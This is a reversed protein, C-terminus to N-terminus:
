PMHADYALVFVDGKLEDYAARVHLVIKTETAMEIADARESESLLYFAEAKCKFIAKGANESVALMMTKAERDMDRVKMTFSFALVGIIGTKNCNYCKGNFITGKCSDTNHKRKVIDEGPPFDDMIVELLFFEAVTKRTDRISKIRALAVPLIVTEKFINRQAQVSTENRVKRKQRRRVQTRLVETDDADDYGIHEDDLYRKLEDRSQPM